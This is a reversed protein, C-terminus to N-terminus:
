LIKAGFKISSRVRGRFIQYGSVWTTDLDSQLVACPKTNPIKTLNSIKSITDDNILSPSRGANKCNNNM